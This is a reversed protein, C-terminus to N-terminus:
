EDPAADLVDVAHLRRDDDLGAARLDDDVPQARRWAFLAPERRADLLRPTPARADRVIRRVSSLFPAAVVSAAGGRPLVRNGPTRAGARWAPFPARKTRNAPRRTCSTDRSRDCSRRRDGGPSGRRPACGRAPRSLARTRCSCGTPVRRARCATCATRREWRRASPVLEGLLLAAHHELAIAAPVLPLEGAEEPPELPELRPRVLHVDAHEERAVAREIWAHFAASFPEARVRERIVRAADVDGRPARELDALRARLEVSERRLGPLAVHRAPFERATQPIQLADTEPIQREVSLRARKRATFGLSHRQRGCEPRREVVREEDEVLRRHAQVRGVDLWERPDHTLEPLTPVDHEDDLVIRRENAGGIPHDLKTRARAAGLAALDDGIARRFLERFLAARRRARERPM